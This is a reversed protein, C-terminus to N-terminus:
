AVGIAEELFLDYPGGDFGGDDDEPKADDVADLKVDEVKSRREVEGVRTLTIYPFM